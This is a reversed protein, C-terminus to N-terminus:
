WIWFLMSKFIPRSSIPLFVLGLNRSFHLDPLINVMTVSGGLGFSCAGARQPLLLLISSFISSSYFSIDNLKINTLMLLIITFLFDSLILKRHLSEINFVDHVQGDTQVQTAYFIEFENLFQFLSIFLSSVFM